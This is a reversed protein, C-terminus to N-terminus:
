QSVGKERAERSDLRSDLTSLRLRKCGAVQVPYAIFMASLLM